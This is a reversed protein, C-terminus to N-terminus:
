VTSFFAFLFGYFFSSLGDKFVKLINANQWTSVVFAVYLLTFSICFVKRCFM